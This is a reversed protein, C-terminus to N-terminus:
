SSRRVAEEALAQLHHYSEAPSPRLFIASGVCIDAVGADAIMAINTENVGGDVEIRSAPHTRRFAAIKDMVQPEFKSGYYGPRVTMFLIVDLDHVFPLIATLPTDPNIAMGVELGLVRAQRITDAPSPAAEYHFIVKSAGLRKLDAFYTVPQEVMIHAEWEFGISIAALDELSVSRTPVFRGDMFDFQAYGAFGEVQRVMTRLAEPDSTLIAPVIRVSLVTSIRLLFIAFTM